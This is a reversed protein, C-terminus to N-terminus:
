LTKHTVTVILAKGSIVDCFIGVGYFGICMGVLILKYHSHTQSKPRYFCNQYDLICM